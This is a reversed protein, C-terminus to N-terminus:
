PSPPYIAATVTMESVMNELQYREALGIWEIDEAGHPAWDWNFFGRELYGYGIRAMQGRVAMGQGILSWLADPHWKILAMLMGSRTFSELCQTKRYREEIWLEGHYVLTGRVQAARSHEPPDLRRPIVMEQRKVYLGIMWGLAWEALSTMVYDARFAQMAAIKGSKDFGGVWFSTVKDLQTVSPDFMPSVLSSRVQQRAAGFEKFDSSLRLDLGMQRCEATLRSVTEVLALPNGLSAIM